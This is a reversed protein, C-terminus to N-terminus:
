GPCCSPCAYFRDGSEWDFGDFRLVFEVTRFFVIAGPRSCFDCAPVARPAPAARPFPPDESSPM